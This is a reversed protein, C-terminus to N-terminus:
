KGLTFNVEASDGAGSVEASATGVGLSPHSARLEYTGPEVGGLRYTGDPGSRAAIERYRGTGRVVAVIAGEVPRGAEDRVLGHFM